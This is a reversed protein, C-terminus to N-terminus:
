QYILFFFYWIGAHGCPICMINIAKKKCILCKNHIDKFETKDKTFILAKNKIEYEKQWTKESAVSEDESELIENQM